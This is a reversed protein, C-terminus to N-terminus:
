KEFGVGCSPCKVPGGFMTASYTEIVMMIFVLQDRTLKIHREGNYWELTMRHKPHEKDAEKLIGILKSLIIRM